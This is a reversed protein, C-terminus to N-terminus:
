VQGLQEPHHTRSYSLLLFYNLGLCAEDRYKCEKYICIVTYSLVPKNEPTCLESIHTQKRQPAHHVQFNWGTNVQSQQLITKM